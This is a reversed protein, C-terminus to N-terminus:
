YGWFTQQNSSMTSAQGSTISTTVWEGAETMWGDFYNTSCNDQGGVGLGNASSTFGGVNGSTASGNVYITSGTGIDDGILSNWNTPTYSATFGAGSGFLRFTTGGGLFMIQPNHTNIDIYTANSATGNIKGVSIVDQLSASQGSFSSTGLCQSNAAVFKMCPLSGICNPLFTPRNVITAQTIDQGNGSQDYLTKVTCLNVGATTGCTVGGIVPDAPIQGTTADSSVDACAVDAVNCINAAKTGRKAASYARFGGWWYASSFVDGPGTYGPASAVSQALWAEAPPAQLTFGILFTALAAVFIKRM